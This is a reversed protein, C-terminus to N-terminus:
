TITSIEIPRHPILGSYIPYPVFSHSRKPTPKKREYIGVPTSPISWERGNFIFFRLSTFWTHTHHTTPITTTHTGVIYWLCVLM